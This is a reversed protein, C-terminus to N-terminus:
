LADPLHIADQFSCVREKLTSISGPCHPPVPCEDSRHACKMETDCLDPLYNTDEKLCKFIPSLTAANFTQTDSYIEWFARTLGEPWLSLAAIGEEMEACSTDSNLIQRAAAVTQRQTDLFQAPSMDPDEDSTPDLMSYSLFADKCQEKCAAHSNNDCGRQIYEPDQEDVERPDCYKHKEGCATICFSQVNWLVFSLQRHHCQEHCKEDNKNCEELCVITKDRRETRYISNLEWTSLPNPFAAKYLMQTGAITCALLVLVILLRLFDFSCVSKTKGVIDDSPIVAHNSGGTYQIAFNPRAPDYLIIPVIDAREWQRRSMEYSANHNARYAISQNSRACNMWRGEAICGFRLLYYRNWYTWSIAIWVVATVPLCLVIVWSLFTSFADDFFFPVAVILAVALGIVVSLGTRFTPTSWLSPALFYRNDRDSIFRRNQADFIDTPAIDDSDDTPSKLLSKRGFGHRWLMVGFISILAIGALLWALWTPTHSISDIKRPIEPMKRSQEGISSSPVFCDNDALCYGYWKEQPTQLEEFQSPDFGELSASQQQKQAYSADGIVSWSTSQDDSTLNQIILAHQLQNVALPLDRWAAIMWDASVEAIQGNALNFILYQDDSLTALVFQPLTPIIKASTITREHLKDRTLATIKAGTRAQWAILSEQGEPHITILTDNKLDALRGASPYDVQAIRKWTIDTTDILMARNDSGGDLAAIDDQGIAVVSKDPEPLKWYKTEFRNKLFVGLRAVIRVINADITVGMAYLTGKGVGKLTATANISARTWNLQDFQYYTLRKTSSHFLMLGSEDLSYDQETIPDYAVKTHNAWWTDGHESTRFWIHMEDTGIVVLRDNGWVIDLPIASLKTSSFLVVENDDKCKLLNLEIGDDGQTLIAYFSQTFPDKAVLDANPMFKHWVVRFHSKELAYINNADAYFLLNKHDFLYSLPETSGPIAPAFHGKKAEFDFRYFDSKDTNTSCVAGELSLGRGNELWLGSGPQCQIVPEAFALVSGLLFLGFCSILRLCINM